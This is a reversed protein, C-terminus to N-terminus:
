NENCYKSGNPVVKLKKIDDGITSKPLKIKNILIKPIFIAIAYTKKPSIIAIIEPIM